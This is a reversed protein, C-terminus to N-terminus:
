VWAGKRFVPVRTGDSRIGDVDMEACGIMFDVHVQSRNLGAMVLDEESMETGGQLNFAYASGFALHSSANEDFLTNFFTIGSQSIPSKDVVLALEGLRCAGEDTELLKALVEEGQKASFNVVKGDKFTFSMGDIVTGAYSLPKTSVVVGDARRCDPATFVEETPMNAMFHEGRVNISGASDWLHDKPMGITLDTGPGIFHFADFQEKNLRSAKELLVENHEKWAKIPDDSYIRTAEFIQDWLAEKAEQASLNPFVTKAWAEGAAAVVTWSIKNAQAALRLNTMEKNWATQYAGIREAPIGALAGPDSSVVSIRTAGREIWTDVQDLKFDDVTGVREIDGHAVFEKLISDDSWQVIVEAAGLQYARKTILRALEAQEVSIYIVITHSKQINVGFEAILDAYKRLNENFNKM